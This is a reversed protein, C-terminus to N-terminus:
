AAVRAQTESRIGFHTGFGIWGAETVMVSRTDRLREIWGQDLCHRALKAGLLGGIHFRRETWDLCPRCFARRKRSTGTLDLGIAGLRRYGAHTVGGGEADLAILGQAVLADAIEVALRGALHDYCMRVQRLADQKPSCPRYRPPPLTAAVAAITELMQAVLPSAIRFYRHRGQAVVSLLNAEALRRLHESATPPSIRAAFALEKATLARGDMLANLIAARAQDGVLAAIEALDISNTM